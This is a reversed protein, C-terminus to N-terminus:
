CPTVRIAGSPLMSVVPGKFNPLISSRCRPPAFVQPGWEWSWATLDVPLRPHGRLLVASPTQLPCPLPTQSVGHYCARCRGAPSKGRDSNLLHVRTRLWLEEEESAQESEAVSPGSSCGRFLHCPTHTFQNQELLSLSRRPIALSLVPSTKGDPWRNLSQRQSRGPRCM